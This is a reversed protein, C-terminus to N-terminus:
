RRITIKCNPLSKQLQTAGDHTVRTKTAWLYTLGRLQALESFGADTVSTGRVSLTRLNTLTALGKLGADTISEPLTLETLNTLPALERLGVDTIKSRDLKLSRLNTLTALEKLGADTISEPLTLETLNALPALERLGVDTVKTPKLYLKTLTKLPALEKLGADTVSEPLSLFTLNKFAALERLGADTIALKAYPPTAATLFLNLDLMSVDELKTPRRNGYQGATANPLTHLLDLERLIALTRDTLRNLFLTTLHKLPELEKLGADTVSEPLALTTLNKLPALEKLGVDTVRTRHIYLTTLNTLPALEKLGADTVSEPLDLMTLHKLSALGKLEADTSRAESEQVGAIRLGFGSSPDPLEKLDPANTEKRTFLHVKAELRGTFSYNWGRKSYGEIAAILEEDEPKLAKSKGATSTTETLEFKAQEEPNPDGAKRCGTTACLGIWLLL